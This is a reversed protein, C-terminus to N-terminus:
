SREQHHTCVATRATIVVAVDIKPYIVMRFGGHFERPQEPQVILEMCMEVRRFGALCRGFSFALLSKKLAVLSPPRSPTSFTILFWHLGGSLTGM